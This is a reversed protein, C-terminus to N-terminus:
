NEGSKCVDHNGMEQETKKTAGQKGVSAKAFAPSVALDPRGAQWTSAELSSPHGEANLSKIQSQRM